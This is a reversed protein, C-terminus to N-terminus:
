VISRCVKCSSKMVIPERHPDATRARVTAAIEKKLKAMLLRYRIAELM